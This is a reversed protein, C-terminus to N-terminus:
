REVPKEGSAAAVCAETAQADTHRARLRGGVISKMRFFTNEVRGQRRYGSEKKWRRRGVKRNRRIARDREPLPPRRKKRATTRRSPPAM